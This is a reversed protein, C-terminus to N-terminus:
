RPLVWITKAYDIFKLFTSPELAVRNSSHPSNAMLWIQYGDYSAYAGDGVHVPPQPERVGMYEIPMPPEPVRKLVVQCKPCTPNGTPTTGGESTYGCIGCILTM